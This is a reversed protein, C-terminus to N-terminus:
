VERKRWLLNRLPRTLVPLRQSKGIWLGLLAVASVITLVSARLSTLIGQFRSRGMRRGYKFADLPFSKLRANRYRTSCFLPTLVNRASGALRFRGLPWRPEAVIKSALRCGPCEDELTRLVAGPVEAGLLRAANLALHVAGAAQARIANGCLTQWCVGGSVVAQIDALRLFGVTLDDTILEAGYHILMDEPSLALMSAGGFQVPVARSRLAEEDITLPVHADLLSWHVDVSLASHQSYKVFSMEHDTRLQYEEGKGLASVAKSLVRQFGCAQLVAAVEAYDDLRILLDLDNLLRTGTPYRSIMAAGKLLVLPVGASALQVFAPATAEVYMTQRSRATFQSVALVPKLERPVLGALEAWDRVNKAVLGHVSLRTALNWANTWSFGSSSALTVAHALDGDSPTIKALDFLFWEEPLIEPDFGTWRARFAHDQV